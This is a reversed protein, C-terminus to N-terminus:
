SDAADWNGLSALNAIEQELNNDSRQALWDYLDNIGFKRELILDYIAEPTLNEVYGGMGEPVTHKWDDVKKTLWENVTTIPVMWGDDESEPYLNWGGMEKQHKLPPAKVVQEVTPGVNGRCVFLKTKQMLYPGKPPEGGVWRLYGRKPCKLTKSGAWFCAWRETMPIYDLIATPDITKAYEKSRMFSDCRKIANNWENENDLPTTKSAWAQPDNIPAWKQLNVLYTELGSLSTSALNNGLNSAWTVKKELPQPKAVRPSQKFNRTAPM